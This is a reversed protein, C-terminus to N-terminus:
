PCYPPCPSGNEYTGSGGPDDLKQAPPNNNWVLTGDEKSGVLVLDNYDKGASDQKRCFFFRIGTLTSDALIKEIAIRGYFVSQTQGPNMQQYDAIWREADSKSVQNGADPKFQNAM